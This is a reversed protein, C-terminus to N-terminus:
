NTERRICGMKKLEFSKDIKRTEIGCSRVQFIAFGVFILFSMGFVTEPWKM